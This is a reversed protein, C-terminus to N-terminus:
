QSLLGGGMAKELELIENEIELIKQNMKFMYTSQDGMHHKNADRAKMLEVIEDEIELVKKNMKSMYISQDGMHHKNADRAKELELIKDSMKFVYISQDRLHGKNSENLERLDQIQDEYHQKQQELQEAHVHQQTALQASTWKKIKLELQDLTQSILPLIHENNARIDNEIMQRIDQKSAGLVGSIANNNTTDSMSMPLAFDVVVSRQVYNERM